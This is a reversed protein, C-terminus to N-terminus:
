GVARDVWEALKRRAAKSSKLWARFSEECAQLAEDVENITRPARAAYTPIGELRAHLEPLHQQWPTEEDTEAGLFRDPSELAQARKVADAEAKELAQQVRALVDNWDPPLIPHSTSQRSM